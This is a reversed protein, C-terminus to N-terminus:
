LIMQKMYLKKKDDNGGGNTINGHGDNNDNNYNDNKNNDNDNNNRMASQSPLRRMDLDTNNNNKNKLRGKDNDNINDNKGYKKEFEIVRKQLLSVLLSDIVLQIPHFLLLPVTYLGLNNSEEYLTTIMPVGFAATKQTACFLIAIRDYISFDFFKTM